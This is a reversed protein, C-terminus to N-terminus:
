RTAGFTYAARACADAAELGGITRTVFDTALVVAIGLGICADAQRRIIARTVISGTESVANAALPDAAFCADVLDITKGPM